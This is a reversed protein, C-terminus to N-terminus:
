YHPPLEQTAPAPEGSNRQALDKRLSALERALQAIVLQQKAVIDSLQEVTDETYSAKIELSDLRAQMENNASM